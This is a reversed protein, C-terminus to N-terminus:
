KKEELSGEVKAEAAKVAVDPYLHGPQVAVITDGVDIGSMVEVREKERIGLEIPSLVAKGDKIKYVFIKGERLFTAEHPITIVDKKEQITLDLDQSTGIVCNQCDIDAYAPCMHTEEDIMRQVHTLPYAKGDFEITQGDKIQNILSDPIDFEIILSSPDYFTVVPEGVEVQTGERIKYVGVIGDFPALFRSKNLEIKTIALNKQSEIWSTKADELAKHSSHGAKQLQSMREFQARAIAEASESLAYNREGDANEILAIVEGKKVSQGPLILSDLTGSTKAILVTAHKPRITGIFHATQRINTKTIHEIEVVKAEQKPPTASGSLFIKYFLGIILATFIGILIRSYKQILPNQIIGSITAKLHRFLVNM